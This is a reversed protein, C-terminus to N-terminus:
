NIIIKFLICNRGAAAAYPCTAYLVALNLAVQINQNVRRIRSEKTHVDHAFERRKLGLESMIKNLNCASPLFDMLQKPFSLSNKTFSRMFLVRLQFHSLKKSNRISISYIFHMLLLLMWFGISFQFDIADSLKIRHIALECEIQLIWMM